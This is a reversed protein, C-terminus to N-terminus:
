ERFILVVCFFFSYVSQSLFSRKFYQKTGTLLTVPLTIKRTKGSFFRLVTSSLFSKLTHKGLYRILDNKIPLRAVASINSSPTIAFDFKFVDRQVILTRAENLGSCCSVVLVNRHKLKAVTTVRGIQLFQFRRQCAVEAIHGACGCPKM